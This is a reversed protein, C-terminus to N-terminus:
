TQCSVEAYSPSSDGYPATIAALTLVQLVAGWPAARLARTPPRTGTRTM